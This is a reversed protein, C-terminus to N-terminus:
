RIFSILSIMGNLKLRLSNYNKFPKRKKRNFLDCRFEKLVLKEIGPLLQTRFRGFTRLISRPILAIKEVFKGSDRKKKM